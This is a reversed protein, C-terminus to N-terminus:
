IGITRAKFTFKSAATDYTGGLDTSTYKIQGSVEDITFTIGAPGLAPAAAIAGPGVTLGWVDSVGDYLAILNFYETASEISTKRYAVLDILGVRVSTKDFILGTINAESSQNDAIAFDTEEIFGGGVLSELAIGADRLNDFWERVIRALNARDPISAFSM